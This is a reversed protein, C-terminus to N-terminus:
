LSLVRTIMKSNASSHTLALGDELLIPHGYDAIKDMPITTAGSAVTAVAESSAFIGLERIPAGETLDVPDVNVSLVIASTVEDTMYFRINNSSTFIKKASPKRLHSQRVIANSVIDRIDWALYKDNAHITVYGNVSDNSWLKVIGPEIAGTLAGSGENTLASSVNLVRVKGKCDIEEAVQSHGCLVLDWTGDLLHALEELAGEGGTVPPHHVVCIKWPAPSAKAAAKLALAQVSGATIGDPETDDGATNKGSHYFSVHVPSVDGVQPTDYNISISRYRGSAIPEFYDMMNDLGGVGDQDKNGYAPFLNLNNYYYSFADLATSIDSPSNGSLSMNGAYLVTKAQATYQLRTALLTQRAGAEGADSIYGITARRMTLFNKVYGKTFVRKRFLPHGLGTSNSTLPTASDGIEFHTEETLLKQLLIGRGEVPKFISM